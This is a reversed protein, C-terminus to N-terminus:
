RGQGGKSSGAVPATATRQLVELTTATSHHKPPVASTRSRVMTSAIGQSRSVHLHGETRPAIPPASSRPEGGAASADGESAKKAPVRTADALAALLQEIEANGPHQKALMSLTLDCRKLLADRREAEKKADYHKDVLGAVAKELQEKRQSLNRYDQATPDSSSSSTQKKCSMDLLLRQNEVQLGANESRLTQVLAQLRSVDEQAFQKQVPLIASHENWSNTVNRLHDAARPPAAAPPPRASPSGFGGWLPLMHLLAQINNTQGMPSSSSPASSPAPPALTLPAPQPQPRPIISFDMESAGASTAPRPVKSELMMFSEGLPRSPRVGMEQLKAQMALVDKVGDATSTSSLKPIMSLHEIRDMHVKMILRDSLIGIEHDALKTMGQHPDRVSWLGRKAQDQKWATSAASSSLNSLYILSRTMVPDQAAEAADAYLKAAELFRKAKDAPNESRQAEAYERRALDITGIM